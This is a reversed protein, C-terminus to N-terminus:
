EKDANGDIELNEDSRLSDKVKPRGDGDSEEFHIHMEVPRSALDQEAEIQAGFIRLLNILQQTAKADGAAARNITQKMIAKMKSIRKREGNEKVAVKERLAEAFISAPRFDVNRKPRGSPNGSKGKKFQHKCPPQGYGISDDGIM